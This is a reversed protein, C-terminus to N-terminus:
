RLSVSIEEAWILLQEDANFHAALQLGYPLGRVSKGCPISVTPL